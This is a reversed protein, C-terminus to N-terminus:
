SAAVRVKRGARRAVPKQKKQVPELLGVKEEDIAGSQRVLVPPSPPEEEETTPEVPEIPTNPPQELEVPEVPSETSSTTVTIKTKHKVPMAKQHALCDARLVKTLKGIDRVAARCRTSECRVGGELKGASVKAQNCLVSLENFKTEFSM